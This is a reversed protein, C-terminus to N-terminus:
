ATSLSADYFKAGKAVAGRCRRVYAFSLPLFLIVCHSVECHPVLGDKNPATSAFSRRIM